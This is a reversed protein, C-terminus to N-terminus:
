EDPHFVLQDGPQTATEEATGAPLELVGHARLCLSIRWPKWGPVIKVVKKKRDLYLVDISFKMFFSHVGECPVIYLGEGRPLSDHKLLGQRRKESTNAMTANTALFTNRTSNEIRM